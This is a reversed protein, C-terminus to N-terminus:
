LSFSFFLRDVARPHLYPFASIPFGTGYKNILHADRESTKKKKKSENEIALWTSINTKEKNLISQVPDIFLYLHDNQKNWKWESKRQQNDLSSPSEIVITDIVSWFPACLSNNVSWRGMEFDRVEQVKELIDRQSHLCDALCQGHQKTKKKKKRRLCITENPWRYTNM